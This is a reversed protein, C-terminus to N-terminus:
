RRRVVNLVEQLGSVMAEIRKVRISIKRVERYTRCERQVRISAVRIERRERRREQLMRLRMNESRQLHEQRRAEHLEENRMTRQPVSPGNNQM